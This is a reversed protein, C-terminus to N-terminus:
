AVSSDVAEVRSSYGWSQALRPSVRQLECPTVRQLFFASNRINRNSIAVGHFSPYIDPTHRTFKKIAVLNHGPSVETYRYLWGEWIKKWFFEVDHSVFVLKSLKYSLMISSQLLTWPFPIRESLQIRVWSTGCGSCVKEGLNNMHLHCISWSELWMSFLFCTALLATMWTFIHESSILATIPYPYVWFVPQVDSSAFERYEERRVQVM